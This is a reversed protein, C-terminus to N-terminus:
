KYDFCFDFGILAPHSGTLIKIDSRQADDWWNHGYMTADHHGVLIKNEQLKWTWLCAKTEAPSKWRCNSRRYLAGGFSFSGASHNQKSLTGMTKGITQESLFWPLGNVDFVDAHYIAQLVTVFLWRHKWKKAQFRLRVMKKLKAVLIFSCIM